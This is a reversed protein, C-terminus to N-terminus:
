SRTKRIAEDILEDIKVPGIKKRATEIEEPTFRTLNKKAQVILSQKTGTYDAISLFGKLAEDRRDEKLYLRFLALLGEIVTPMAKIRYLTKLAEHFYKRAEKFNGMATYVSGLNNMTNGKGRDDGIDRKIALSELYLREAEPYHGLSEQMSGINNLCSAIGPRDNIKRRIELSQEYLALAEDNRGVNNLVNALNNMSAARGRNDGVDTRLKLAREHLTIATDDEGMEHAVIALNNLSVSIGRPEGQSERLALVKEHLQRALQYDGLRYAIVGLENMVHMAENFSDDPLLQLSEELIARAKTFQGLYRNISGWYAIVRGLQVRQSRDSPQATYRKKLSEVAIRLLEEGEQLWGRMEYFNHLIVLAKNIEADRGQDIARLWASKINDIDEGIGTLFQEERGSRYLECFGELLDAYYVCHRDQVAEKEKPERDLKEAAYQRLVKLMEYRGSASRRLLSKDVMLSLSQLSAECVREAADRTFGGSFVSLKRFLQKERVTLLEWSYEFVARLSRHRKPMDQVTSELFDINKELEQAIETTNLSRMWSAALEICLPIGEVRQFIRVLAAKDEPELAYDPKVCRASQVFLRVASYEDFNGDEGSRPYDMGGLEVIHEGKLRLRERSTILFKIKYATKFIETLLEAEGVLHEFNDMILLMEKERLYNILQVKPDERSYFSFNLANAITFVLFQVSGVTLTDLPVFYVGHHFKEIKQAAVQLALRTKGVGGPGVINILRCSPNEVISVVEKFEKDRGIFPTPQAPLNHPHASMSRLPPFERVVLDPHMLGFIQQPEGLDHLQHVGLDILQGGAPLTCYDRVDPTLLIQGGWATEMLRATRNIVTGFYDSGRKEAQGAHLAIRIRLEGIEGWDEKAFRQQIAIACHLPQGEEFIAFVGDGTHKIMRGYHKDIEDRIIADHRSLIKGMEKQYKEWKETSKEIDTLMFIPM